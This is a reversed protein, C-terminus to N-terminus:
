FNNYMIYVIMLRCSGALFIYPIFSPIGPPSSIKYQLHIAITFASVQLPHMCGVERGHTKALIPITFVATNVQPSRASSAHHSCAWQQGVQFCLGTDIISWSFFYKFLFFVRVTIFQVSLTKQSELVTVGMRTKKSDVLLTVFCHM